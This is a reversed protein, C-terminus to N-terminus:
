QNDWGPNQVIGKARDIEAQPIPFWYFAKKFVRRGIVTRKYFAEDSLSTGADVNMGYFEGANVEEAILWRRTDFYRICEFCLEVRREHRIREQMDAQGLGSPVGPLGARERILNLYHRIDSNGPEYENLAEIYNLLIETYRIMLHPRGIYVGNRTDSDPHINKLILYGTKSYDHTGKKGTNGAYFLEIQTSHDGSFIWKSGNFAVNVYFRPERNAYMKWVKNYSYPIPADTFGEEEYDTGQENIRKGTATEFEDVLQQTVSLGSYGGAFRPATSKEWISLRNADATNNMSMIVESNWPELYVNRCSLYPNLTNDANYEKYLDFLGLDILEKAADAAKKWKSNDYTTNMLLKGDRNKFNSYMPNGNYQPSAALLLLRSKTAICWAQTARGYDNDPQSTFHVPLDKAALNLENVVFDVCEDFSSRPIDMAPDNASIDPAIIDDSLLICPGYQKLINYYFWARLFRAEAKYQVILDSRGLDILEKNEEIRNMFYTASRIGEYYHKWTDYYGSAPNWKGINMYNPSQTEWTMEMDDSMAEWPVMYNKDGENIIYSYIKALYEESYQKKSFVLDMTIRDNPVQDFFSDNCACMITTVLAILTYKINKM